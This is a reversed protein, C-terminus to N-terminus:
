IKDVMKDAIVKPNNRILIERSITKHDYTCNHSFSYRHDACHREGCKCDFCTAIGLKKNCTACRMKKNLEPQIQKIETPVLKEVISTSLNTSNVTPKKGLEPALPKTTIDM